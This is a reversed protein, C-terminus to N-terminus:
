KGDPDDQFPDGSLEAPLEGNAPHSTWFDPAVEPAVASPQETASKQTSDSATSRDTSTANENLTHQV